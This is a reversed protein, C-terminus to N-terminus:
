PHLEFVEYTYNQKFCVITSEEIIKDRMLEFFNVQQVITEFNIVLTTNQKYLFSNGYYM